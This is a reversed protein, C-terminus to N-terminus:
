EIGHPLFLVPLFITVNQVIWENFRCADVGNLPRAAVWLAHDTKFSPVFFSFIRLQLREGRPRRRM